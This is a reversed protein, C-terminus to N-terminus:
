TKHTEGWTGDMEALVFTINWMNPPQHQESPPIFDTSYDLRVGDASVPLASDHGGVSVDDNTTTNETDLSTKCLFNYCINRCDIMLVCYLM